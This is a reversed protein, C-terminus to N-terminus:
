MRVVAHQRELRKVFGNIERKHDSLASEAQSLRMGLQAAYKDKNDSTDFSEEELLVGM